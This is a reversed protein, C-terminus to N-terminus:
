PDFRSDAWPLPAVVADAGGAAGEAGTFPAGGAAGRSAAGEAFSAFLASFVALALSGAGPPASSTRSRPAAARVAALMSADSATGVAVLTRATGALSS